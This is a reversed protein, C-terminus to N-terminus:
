IKLPPIKWWLYESFDALTITFVNKWPITM